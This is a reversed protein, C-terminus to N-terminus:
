MGYAQNQKKDGAFIAFVPSLFRKKGYFIKM